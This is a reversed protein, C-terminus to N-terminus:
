EDDIVESLLARLQRADAENLLEVRRDGEEGFRVFVDGNKGALVRIDTEPTQTASM